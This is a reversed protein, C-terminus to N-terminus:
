VDCVLLENDNIKTMTTIYMYHGNIIQYRPYESLQNGDRDFFFVGGYEFNTGADSAVAIVNDSMQAIQLPAMELQEGDAFTSITTGNVDLKIIENSDYNSFLLTYQDLFTIGALHIYPSNDIVTEFLKRDYNGSIINNNWSLNPFLV